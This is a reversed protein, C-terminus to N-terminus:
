DGAIAAEIDKAAREALVRAYDDPMVKIFRKLARTWDALLAAAKQNADRLNAEVAARASEAERSAAQAKEIAESAKADRETLARTVPKMVVIWIPALAAFFIILTWFFNSFHDLKLPDFGGEALAILALSDM